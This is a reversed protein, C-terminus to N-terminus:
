LCRRMFFCVELNMPNTAAMSAVQTAPAAGKVGPFMTTLRTPVPAVSLLAAVAIKRTSYVGVPVSTCVIGIGVATEPACAGSVTWPVAVVSPM